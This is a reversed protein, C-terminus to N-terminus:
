QGTGTAASVLARVVVTVSSGALVMGAAWWLLRV